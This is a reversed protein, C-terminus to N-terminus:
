TIFMKRAQLHPKQKILNHALVITHFVSYVIIIENLELHILECEVFCNNKNLLVLLAVNVDSLGRSFPFCYSVFLIISRSNECKM